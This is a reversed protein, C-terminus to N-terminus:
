LPTIMLRSRVEYLEKLKELGRHTQVAVANKTQGTILSIEQLSLDQMYRLRMVKQYSVPLQEILAAAQKGDLMDVLRYADDVSPDFGKDFLADLSTPKKKRYEDIILAKLVHYLFAEMTKIKGGRVLYAWTKLFTNQILDDALAKDHTRSYAYQKLRTNLSAYGAGLIIRQRQMQTQTTM